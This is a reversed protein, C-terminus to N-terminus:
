HEQIFTILVGGFEWTFETGYAVLEKFLEIDYKTVPVQIKKLLEIESKQKDCLAKYEEVKEQCKVASNFLSM